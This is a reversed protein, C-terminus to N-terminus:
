LLQERSEQCSGCPIALSCECEMSREVVDDGAEVIRTILKREQSRLQHHTHTHGDTHLVLYKM